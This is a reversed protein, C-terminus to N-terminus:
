KLDEPQIFVHYYGKTTSGFESYDGEERFEIYDLILQADSRDLIMSPASEGLLAQIRAIARKTEQHTDNM